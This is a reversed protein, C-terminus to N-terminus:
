FPKAGTPSRSGPALTRAPLPSQVVSRGELHHGNETTEAETSPDKEIAGGSDQLSLMIAQRLMEEEMEAASPNYAGRGYDGVSISGAGFRSSMDGYSHTKTHAGVKKVSASM